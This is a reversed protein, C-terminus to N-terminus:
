NQYEKEKSVYVGWPNQETRPGSEFGLELRLDGAAKLGQISTIRDGEIVAVGKKLDVRIEVPYARQAVIKDVSFRIVNQMSGDFARKTSSLIFDEAKGVQASVTKPNWNYRYKLYERLAREIEVKPDPKPAEQYYSADPALTLVATPKIAQYFLLTVLLGCILYASFASMKLFQNSHSLEALAKPLKRLKLKVSENM